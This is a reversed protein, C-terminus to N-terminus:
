SEKLRGSWRLYFPLYPDPIDFVQKQEDWDVAREDPFKEEALKVMHLCTGTVSSGVPFEGSCVKETRKLLDQYPFSLRPPADSIAKLIVRYVDGETGDHFKYTKRETGRIRPGADLVDVLSRFDTSASTQEFIRALLGEDVTASRKLITHERLDLVFRAQLCLLQMLQPSGASEASFRSVSATGVEANLVSFGADAILGLEDTNWYRLDIARVRGRLEPNARVVDDGRHAVAATVIKVGLRVAEKLTKAVEAQLARDMYHFDDILVVFDSNAIEQVVPALGRRERVVETAMEGSIEGRATGGAEAKALSKVEIGGKATAEAGITAGATRSKAVSNPVDMWDLVKEWVSESSRLSSGSIPILYDRGVVREVLVTKGSKSPGSLSVVQGATSLSDRLSEELGEAKRMVYTHQPYAGPVFVETAKLAMDIEM